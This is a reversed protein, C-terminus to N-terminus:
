KEGSPEWLGKTKIEEAFQAPPSGPSFKRGIKIEGPSRGFAKIFGPNSSASMSSGGEFFYTAPPNGKRVRIPVLYRRPRDLYCDVIIVFVQDLAGDSRRILHKESSYTAERVGGSSGTESLLFKAGPESIAKPTVASIPMEVALRQHKEDGFLEAWAFTAKTTGVLKDGIYIRTDEDVEITLEGGIDPIKSVRIYSLIGVGAVLLCVIGAAIIWLSKKRYWANTLDQYEDQYNDAHNSM